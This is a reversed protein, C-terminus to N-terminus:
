RRGSGDKPGRRASTITLYAVDLLTLLLVSGIAISAWLSDVVLIVILCLPVTLLLSRVQLDRVFRLRAARDAGPEPPQVGLLFPRLGKPVSHRDPPQRM